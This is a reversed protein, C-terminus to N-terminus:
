AVDSLVAGVGRLRVISGLMRLSRRESEEAAQVAALRQAPLYAEVAETVLRRLIRAPMAEAEVTARIDSRRKDSAKRPKTPLSYREIQDANIGLRRIELPIDLHRRLETEISQDITVGAPDYDGVYLVLVRDRARSQIEQTAEYVLSVSAFGGAPYLSVALRRCDAQLVGAISRSEVWVEVLPEDPTWLQGRYLGAVQDLFSGPDSYEAVHYGRRTTDVIWGYPIRGSRRLDLCSRKIQQYGSETKEVPVPLRPDTMRYFAHRVTQPNEAELLDVIQQELQQMEARTSRRRRGKHGQTAM